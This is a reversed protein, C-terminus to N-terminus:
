HGVLLGAPLSDTSAASQGPPWLQPGSPPGVLLFRTPDLQRLAQLEDAGAEGANWGIVCPHARDRLMLARLESNRTETPEAQRAGEIVLMGETDALRLLAASPAELYVLNAGSAKIRRLLGRVREEDDTTAIVVPQDFHPAIAALKVQASNITVSGNQLALTRFGITTEQTDLIDKDQRFALQLRYLTPSEPSWRRLVKRPVNLLLNTENDGPTLHLNQHTKQVDRAPADAAAVQADLTADGSNASTNRFKIGVSLYGLADAQPFCDAIYAEDHALLQVGQWLGAGAKGNGTLRVAVLNKEGPHVAKTVNFEFPVVSGTHEGMPEGNVWVRASDAAGEFRL